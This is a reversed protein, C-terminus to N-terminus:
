EHRVLIKHKELVKVAYILAAKIDEISLYPYDELIEEISLGEALRRLIAEVTVRTGRIVPKGGMIKPNIEIRDLLDEMAM